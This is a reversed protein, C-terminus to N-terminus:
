KQMKIRVPQRNKAEFEGWSGRRIEFSRVRPSYILPSPIEPGIREPVHMSHSANLPPPSPSEEARYKREVLIEKSGTVNPSSVCENKNRERSSVPFQPRM